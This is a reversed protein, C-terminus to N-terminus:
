TFLECEYIMPEYECQGWSRPAPFQQRKPQSGTFCVRFPLRSICGDSDLSLYGNTVKLWAVTGTDTDAVLFAGQPVFSKGLKRHPTTGIAQVPFVWDTWALPKTEEENLATIGQVVCWLPQAPQVVSIVQSPDVIAFPITM